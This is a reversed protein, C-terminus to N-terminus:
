SSFSIPEVTPYENLVTPVSLLNLEANVDSSFSNLDKQFAMANKKHEGPIPNEQSGIEIMLTEIGAQVLKRAYTAGVPGSGVILVQTTYIKSGNSSQATTPAM